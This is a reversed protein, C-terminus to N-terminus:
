PCCRIWIPALQSALGATGGGQVGVFPYLDHNASTVISIKGVTSGVVVNGAVVPPSGDARAAGQGWIQLWCYSAAAVTTVAMGLPLEVKGQEAQIGWFPNMLMSGQSRSNVVHLLPNHLQLICKTNKLAAPHEKILLSQLSNLSATQSSIIWMGGQFQNETIDLATNVLIEVSYDGIAGATCGITAIESYGAARQATFAFENAILATLAYAYHYVSGNSVCVRQGITYKQTTSTEFLFRMDGGDPPIGGDIGVQM